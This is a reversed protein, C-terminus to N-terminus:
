DNLGTRQRTCLQWGDADGALVSGAVCCDNSLIVLNEPNVLNMMYM